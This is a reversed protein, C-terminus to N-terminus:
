VHGMTRATSHQSPTDCVFLPVPSEPANLFAHKHKDDSDHVASGTRTGGRRVVRCPPNHFTTPKWTTSSCQTQRGQRPAATPKVRLSDACRAPQRTIHQVTSAQRCCALQSPAMRQGEVHGGGSACEAMKLSRSAESGRKRIHKGRRAAGRYTSATRIMLLLGPAFHCTAHQLCLERGMVNHCKCQSSWVGGTATAAQGDAAASCGALEASKWCSDRWSNCATRCLRSAHLFCRHLPAAM